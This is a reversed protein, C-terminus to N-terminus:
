IAGKTRRVVKSQVKEHLVCCLLFFSNLLFNMLYSILETMYFPRCHYSKMMILDQNMIELEEVRSMALNLNAVLNDRDQTIQNLEVLKM